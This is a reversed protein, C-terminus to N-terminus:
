DSQVATTDIVGDLYASLLSLREAPEDGVSMHADLDDDIVPLMCALGWIFHQMAPAFTEMDWELTNVRRDRYFQEVAVMAPEPVGAKRAIAIFMEGAIESIRESNISLTMIGRRRHNTSGSRRAQARRRQNSTLGAITNLVRFAYGLVVDKSMAHTKTIRVALGTDDTEGPIRPQDM